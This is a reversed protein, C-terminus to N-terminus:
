IGESYGEGGPHVGTLDEGRDNLGVSILSFCDCNIQRKCAEEDAVLLLTGERRQLHCCLLEPLVDLLM